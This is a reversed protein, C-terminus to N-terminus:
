EGPPKGGARLHYVAAMLATSMVQLPTVALGFLADGVLAVPSTDHLKLVGGLFIVVILYNPIWCLVVQAALWGGFAGKMRRWADALTLGPHGMLRALPWLGIRFRSWLLLGGAVILAIAAGGAQPSLAAGAKGQGTVGWVAAMWAVMVGAFALDVGLYTLAGRDLTWTRESELLRRAGAAMIAAGLVGAILEPATVAARAGEAPAPASLVIAQAAMNVAAAILWVRKAHPWTRRIMDLATRGIVAAPLPGTRYDAM